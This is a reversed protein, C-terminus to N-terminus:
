LRPLAFRLAALSAADLWQVDDVAVCLPREAALQRLGALFAAAVAREDAEGEADDLLLARGLARRQIPPLELLVEEAVDELLDALGAYSFRAEAESPRCSLTRYGGVEAAALGALWLASKGIGAEGDLVVTAPLGAPALRGAVAALEEEGGVLELHRRLETM